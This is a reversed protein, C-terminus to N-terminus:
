VFSHPLKLLSASRKRCMSSSDLGQEPALMALRTFAVSQVQGQPKGALKVM